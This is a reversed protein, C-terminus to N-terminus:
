AAKAKRAWVALIVILIPYLVPLMVVTDEFLGPGGADCMRRTWPEGLAAANLSATFGQLWIQGYALPLAILSGLCALIPWLFSRNWRSRAVATVAFGLMALVSLLVATVSVVPAFVPGLVVYPGTLDIVWHRHDADCPVPDVYVNLLMLQVFWAYLTLVAAALCATRFWAPLLGDQRLDRWWRM